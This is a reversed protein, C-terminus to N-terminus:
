QRSTVAAIRATRTSTSTKRGSVLQHSASGPVPVGTRGRLPHRRRHVHRWALYAAAGLPIPLLYTVSRFLLVAAAVKAAGAPGLGAALPATLGVEVVGLGGPTIPVVSLLRVFAFAALSAQWSVQAQSLGDARLCALLVLWLTLHSAVTTM